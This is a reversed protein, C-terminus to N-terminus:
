DSAIRVFSRSRTALASTASMEASQILGLAAAADLYVDGGRLSYREDFDVAGNLELVVQGGDVPLLDVGALDIGIARAAAIALTSEADTPRAPELRGGLSVNTRWEGEAAVRRAAGVVRGGAVVLRLDHHRPPVVEQILAGHRRFWTRQRVERLRRRVDAEDECLFVDRGWSGFRPKLVLPPDLELSARRSEVHATRPHPIGAARLARATGLKDHAAIL